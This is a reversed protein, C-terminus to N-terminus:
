SIPGASSMTWDLSSGESATMPLAGRWSGLLAWWRSRRARPSIFCVPARASGKRERSARNWADDQPRGRAHTVFPADEPRM